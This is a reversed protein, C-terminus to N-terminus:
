GHYCEYYNFFLERLNLYLDDNIKITQVDKYIAITKPKVCLLCVRNNYLHLWASNYTNIVIKDEYVECNKILEYDCMCDLLFLVNNKYEYNDYYKYSKLVKKVDTISVGNDCNYCDGLVMYNYCEFKNKCDM